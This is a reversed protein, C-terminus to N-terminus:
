GPQGDTRAPAASEQPGGEKPTNGSPVQQAADPVLTIEVRRNKARGAETHNDAAPRTDGYGQIAFQTAPIGSAEILWNRVAEARATSLKLNSDPDGVNDTHGAVLIRKDTHAKIMELANVMVRTSGDKLQAKGSDFLSMSDLTVVAPPSPPPQYSAIADNLPPILRAGRYMGFSLPLPTGTRAYRELENRDAVLTQLADRKAADHNAPIMSYRGLDAGM